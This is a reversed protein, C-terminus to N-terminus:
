YRRASEMLLSPFRIRELRIYNVGPSEESFVIGRGALLTEHIPTVTEGFCVIPPVFPCRGGNVACVGYQEVGSKGGDRSPCSLVIVCKDRWDRQLISVCDPHVYVQVHERAACSRSSGEVVHSQDAKMKSTADVKVTM